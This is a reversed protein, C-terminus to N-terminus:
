GHKGKTPGDLRFSASKSVRLWGLLQRQEEFTPTQPLKAGFSALSVRQSVIAGTM